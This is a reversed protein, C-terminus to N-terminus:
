VKPIKYRKRGVKARGKGAALVALVAAIATLILTVGVGTFVGGFCFVNVLLLCLFYAVSSAGAAQAVMHGARRGALSAGAFVATLISVMSAYGVNEMALVERDILAAILAAAALTWGLGLLVGAGAAKWVSPATGTRKKLMGWEGKGVLTNLLFAFFFRPLM